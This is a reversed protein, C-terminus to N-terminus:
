SLIISENYLIKNLNEELASEYSAYEPYQKSLKVSFRLKESKQQVETLVKVDEWDPKNSFDGAMVVIYHNNDTRNIVKRLEFLRQFNPLRFTRVM